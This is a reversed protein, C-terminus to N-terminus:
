LFALRTDDFYRLAAKMEALSQATDLSLDEAAVRVIREEQEAEPGAEPEAGLKESLVAEGDAGGVAIVRGDEATNEPQELVPEAPVPVVACDEAAAPPLEFPNSVDRITRAGVNEATGRG